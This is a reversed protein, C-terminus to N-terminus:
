GRCGQAESYFEGSSKTIARVSYKKEELDKQIRNGRGPIGKDDDRGVGRDQKGQQIQHKDGAVQM